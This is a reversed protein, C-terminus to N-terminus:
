FKIILTYLRKIVKSNQKIFINLYFTGDTYELM